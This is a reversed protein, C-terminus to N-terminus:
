IADNVEVSRGSEAAQKAALCIQLVRIGEELPILPTTDSEVCQIFHRLEDVFMQNRRDNFTFTEWEGNAARYLRVEGAIYDWVLTGETGVVKCARTTPRQLYDLHLSISLGGATEMLINVNDEADIELAGTNQIQATLNEPTGFLWYLYDVEHSLDLLVGGGMKAHASYLQRYDRGPRWDPLYSGVEAHVYLPRGITNEQLLQRMKQTGPYFRLPYAIMAKLNQRKVLDALESVGELSHSLPKEIFLHAGARATALATPIHLHTPNSVIVIDPKQALAEELSFFSKAGFEREIAEADRRSSRLVFLDDYALACLNRLHRKGISGCGIVLFKM